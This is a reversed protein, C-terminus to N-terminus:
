RSLAVPASASRARTTFSGIPRLKCMHAGASGEVILRRGQLTHKRLELSLASFKLGKSGQCSTASYLTRGYTPSRRAPRCDQRPVEGLAATPGGKRSSWVLYIHAQDGIFGVVKVGFSVYRMRVRRSYLPRTSSGDHCRLASQGGYQPRFWKQHLLSSHRLYLSSSLDWQRKVGQEIM